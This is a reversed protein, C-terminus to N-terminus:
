INQGFKTQIESHKSSLQYLIEKYSLERLANGSPDIVCSDGTIAEQERLYSVETM